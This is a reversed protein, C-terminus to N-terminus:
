LKSLGNSKYGVRTNKASDLFKYPTHFRDGAKLNNIINEGKSNIVKEILLSHRNKTSVVLWKNDHRTIIGSM